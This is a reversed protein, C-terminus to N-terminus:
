RRGRGRHRGGGCRARGTLHALGLHPGCHLGEGDVPVPGVAALEGDLTAALQLNM